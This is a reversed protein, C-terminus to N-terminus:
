FRGRRREQIMCTLDLSLERYAESIEPTLFQGDEVIGRLVNWADWEESFTLCVSCPGPLGSDYKNVWFHCQPCQVVRDHDLNLPYPNPM